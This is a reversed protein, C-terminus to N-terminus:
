VSGQLGEACGLGMGFGGLELEIVGKLRRPRGACDREVFAGSCIWFSFVFIVDTSHVVVCNHQSASLHPLLAPLTVQRSGVAQV